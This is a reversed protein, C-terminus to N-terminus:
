VDCVKFAKKLSDIKDDYKCLFEQAVIGTYGTELIAKM